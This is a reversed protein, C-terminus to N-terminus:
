REDWYFFVGKYDESWYVCNIKSKQFWYKIPTIKCDTFYGYKERLALIHHDIGWSYIKGRLEKAKKYWRLLVHIGLIAYVDHSTDFDRYSFKYEKPLTQGNDRARRSLTKVMNSEYLYQEIM